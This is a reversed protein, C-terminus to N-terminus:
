GEVPTDTKSKLKEFIFRLSFRLTNALPSNRKVSLLYSVDLGFKSYKLGLGFTLYKRDGKTVHEFFYGTRVAFQNAYWWELGSGINIERLEEQFKSGKKIIPDGNDDKIIRGSEDTEFYGPADTFSNFIGAAVGINERDVGSILVNSEDYLGPTPVLLKNFDVAVTFKNYADPRVELASGLRLNTPLFDKETSTAYSIKAGINSINMGINLTADTKGLKMDNKSYLWSIDAAGTRGPKTQQGQVFSNGTLNSNIYRGAIGGSFYKGLKRGYAFDISFENPKFQNLNNGANDTFQILGLSFYRMGFGISSNKDLKKYGSLYALSIDNVLSKLWPTYNINIELDNTAFGLKAPNWHIASADANTAVGADGMAGAKSDPTILLFPVATTITNLQFIEDQNTQGFSTNLGLIFGPTLILLKKMRYIFRLFAKLLIVQLLSLLSNKTHKLSIRLQLHQNKSKLLLSFNM